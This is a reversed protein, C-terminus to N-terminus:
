MRVSSVKLDDVGSQQVTCLSKNYYQVLFRKQVIQVVAKPIQHHRRRTNAHAHDSRSAILQQECCQEVGCKVICTKKYTPKLKRDADQQGRIFKQHLIVSRQWVVVVSM